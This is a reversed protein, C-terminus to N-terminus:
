KRGPWIDLYFWAGLVSGLVDACFDGLTAQRTPVFAQHLEDSFGWFAGFAIAIWLLPAGSLGPKEQALARVFLWTLAGFALLHELKDQFPIKNEGM